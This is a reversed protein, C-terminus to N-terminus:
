SAASQAAIRNDRLQTPRAKGADDRLNELTFEFTRPIKYRVLPDALFARLAEDDLRTRAETAVQVIAHVRNGLDADPLGIVISSRM